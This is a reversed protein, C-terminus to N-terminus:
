KEDLVSLGRTTELSGISSLILYLATRGRAAMKACTPNQNHDIGSPGALSLSSRWSCCGMWFKSSSSNRKIREESASHYMFSFIVKGALVEVLM